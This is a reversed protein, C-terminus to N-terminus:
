CDNVVVTGNLHLEWAVSRVVCENQLQGMGQVTLATLVVQEEIDAPLGLERYQQLSLVSDEQESEDM